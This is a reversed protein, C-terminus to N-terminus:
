KPVIGGKATQARILSGRKSNSKKGFTEVLALENAVTAIAGRFADLPTDISSNQSKNIEELYFNILVILLEFIWSKREFTQSTSFAQGKAANTQEVQKLRFYSHSKLSIKNGIFEIMLIPFDIM